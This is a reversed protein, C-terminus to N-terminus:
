IQSRMDGNIWVFIWCYSGCNSGGGGGVVVNAVGGEGGGGGEIACGKDDNTASWYVHGYNWKETISVLTKGKTM